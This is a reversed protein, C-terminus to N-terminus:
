SMSLDIGPMDFFIYYKSRYGILSSSLEQVTFNSACSSTYSECVRFGCVRQRLDPTATVLECLFAVREFTVIGLYCGM